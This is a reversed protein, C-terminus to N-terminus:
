DEIKKLSLTITFSEEDQAAKISGGMMEAFGKCIYLGLGAGGNSRASDGKVFRDFISDTDIKAGPDTIIKMQTMGDEEPVIKFELRKDSYRVANSILNQIIRVLKEKDANVYINEDSQEFSPELGKRDIEPSEALIEECIVECLNVRDMNIDVQESDILSIEFFDNVLKNLYKARELAIEVNQEAEAEDESRQAVQLYGIISTLPTRMDHSIMSVSEKLRDEEKMTDIKVRLIEEYLKNVETIMSQLDGDVLDINMQRRDENEKMELSIRRMEKKLLLLWVFLFLVLAILVSIIVYLM